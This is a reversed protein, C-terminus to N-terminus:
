YQLCISHLMSLVATAAKKPLVADLVEIAGGLCGCLQRYHSLVQSFYRPPLLGVEGGGCWQGTRKSYSQEGEPATPSLLAQVAPLSM